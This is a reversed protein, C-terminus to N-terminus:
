LRVFPAPLHPAALTGNHARIRALLETRTHAAAQPDEDYVYHITPDELQAPHLVVDGAVVLRHDDIVVSQHGPTHGPTPVVEIAPTLKTRGQLTDLCGATQLPRVTQEMLPGPPSAQIWDLEQQHVLYRANEFSPKGNAISGSAHDSHLHTLVVIDIDAPAVGVQSLAQTLRGPVPAWSAAPSDAEGLGTDVLVTPGADTRLLFCHFHLIWEGHPGFAEPASDKLRRWTETDTDTFTQELPLRIAEGMPGVADCLPIVEVGAVTEPKVTLEHMLAM